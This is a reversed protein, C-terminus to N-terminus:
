SKTAKLEEDIIEKFSAFPVAGSLRRGNIFFAPTGSVGLRVGSQFNQEVQSLVETPNDVCKKWKDKDLKIREAYSVFDKDSLASQNNFLTSYMEWFKGQQMACRAAVAAPKARDHFSLPFDRVVWRVKGRYKTLVETATPIVRACFPCQFESYEVITVCQDERCSIPSTDTNKVGYRVPDYSSIALKFRPEVPKPYNIVLKGSTKAEDIIGQLLLQEHEGRLYKEVEVQRDKDSLKALQPHEKLRGITADIDKKGLRINVDFYNKKEEVLSRKNKKAREQWYHELYKDTAYRSILKYLNNEIDFFKQKETEAIYKLTTAKGDITFAKQSLRLNPKADKAFVLAGVTFLTTAAATLLSASLWFLM